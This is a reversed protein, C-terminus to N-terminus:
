LCMDHRYFVILPTIEFNIKMNTEECFYYLKDTDDGYDYTRTISNKIEPM